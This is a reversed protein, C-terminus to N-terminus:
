LLDDDEDFWSRPPPNERAWKMLTEQPPLSQVLEEIASQHEMEESELTRKRVGLREGKSIIAEITTNGAVTANAGWQRTIVASNGGLIVAFHPMRTSPFLFFFSLM